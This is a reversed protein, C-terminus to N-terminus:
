APTQEPPIVGISISTEVPAAAPVKETETAAETKQETTPPTTTPAQPKEKTLGATLAELVKLVFSMQTELGPGVPVTDFNDIIAYARADDVPKGEFVLGARILEALEDTSFGDSEKEGSETETVLGNGLERIYRALKKKSSRELAAIGAARYVFRQRTGDLLNITFESRQIEQM